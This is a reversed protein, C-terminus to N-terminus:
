LNSNLHRIHQSDTVDRSLSVITSLGLLLNQVIGKFVSCYSCQTPLALKSVVEPVKMSFLLLLSFYINCANHELFM